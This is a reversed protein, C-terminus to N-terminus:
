LAKAKEALLARFTPMTMSLSAGPDTKDGKRGAAARLEDHGVVNEIKFEPNKKLAWLIFNILSEEQADTYAQYKGAIINENAVSERILGTARDVETGWCCIEMGAFRNSVQEYGGWKSVGAHPAWQNFINFEEPIYIKGDGDMVMCGINTKALWHLNAKASAETRGSVTYHVVLGSFNGSATKYPGRPKFKVEKVVVFTPEKIEM